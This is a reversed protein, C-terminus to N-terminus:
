KEEFPRFDWTIELLAGYEEEGILDCPFGFDFGRDYFNMFAKAGLGLGSRHRLGGGIDLGFGWADDTDDWVFRDCAGPPEFWPDIDGEVRTYVGYLATNLGIEVENDYERIPFWQELGGGVRVSFRDADSFPRDDPLDLGGWTLGAIAQVTTGTWPWHAVGLEFELDFASGDEHLYTDDFDSISLAVDIGVEFTPDGREFLRPQEPEDMEAEDTETEVAGPRSIMPCSVELVQDAGTCTFLGEHPSALQPHEVRIRHQGAPVGTFLFTGPPPQPTGPPTVPVLATGQQTVLTITANPLPEGTSDIVEVTLVAWGPVTLLGVLLLV